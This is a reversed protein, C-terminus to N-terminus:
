KFVLGKIDVHTEKYEKGIIWENAETKGGVKYVM